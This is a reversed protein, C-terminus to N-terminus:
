LSKITGIVKEIETALPAEGALVLDATDVIFNENEILVQRITKLYVNLYNNVTSIDKNSFDRLIRRALLIDLPTKIYVTLDILRNFLEHRNGFPYDVLIYDYKYRASNVASIINQIDYLNITQSLPKNLPPASPLQDIDYNDFSIIKSNKLERALSNVLTTKGGATLGSIVIIKSM